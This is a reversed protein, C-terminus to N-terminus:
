EKLALLERAHQLAAVSTKMGGLMRAIEIERAAQDLLTVDSIKIGATISGSIAFHHDAFAAVQPLHTVVIVQQRSALKALRKGVEIATEGGIGADVEDFIYTIRPQNETLAVQLALMIRSLEGGSAAKAIPKLSGDAGHGLQFTVEDKGNQDFYDTNFQVDAHKLPAIACSFNAEPMKLDRLELTIVAQLKEGLECRSSTLEAALQIVIKETELIEAELEAIELDPDLANNLDARNSQMQTILDNLPVGYKRILSNISSRRANLEDLSKGQAADSLRNSVTVSLDQMLINLETFKDLYVQLDSANQILKILKGVQDFMSVDLGDQDLIKQINKYLEQESEFIEFLKIQELVEDDENLTPNIDDFEALASELQAKNALIEDQKLKILKLRQSLQIYKKYADQYKQLLEQQFQGGLSDLAALQWSPKSLLRQDNQGFIQILNEGLEAIISSTSTIGNVLNKGKGNKDIVKSLTLDGEELELDRDLSPDIQNKDLSWTSEVILREAGDRILSVDSRNGLSQNLAHIIMTKGAGTEGTLVTLGAGFNLEAKEVVGLNVIRLEKLM